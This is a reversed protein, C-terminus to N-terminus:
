SQGLNLTEPSYSLASNESPKSIIYFAQHLISSAGQPIELDDMLNQPWMPYFTVLKSVFQDNGSQLELKYSQHSQFSACLKTYYLIPSRNNKLTMWWNWPWMPSFIVLKSVFEANASQLGTQIWQHSQFSAFLKVYYLLSASNNKSTM